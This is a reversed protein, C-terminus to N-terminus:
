IKVSSLCNRKIKKVISSVNTYSHVKNIRFQGYEDLHQEVADTLSINNGAVYEYWVAYNDPTMAIGYRRM